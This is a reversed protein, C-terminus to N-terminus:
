LVGRLLVKSSDQSKVFCHNVHFEFSVDNDKAFQSVCVRNKTIAPVLLMNNLKLTTKPHLPSPFKLSGVYTIALGQGNGIHVQDSGSLSVFDMLNFADPTVHHTAGSDPYWVNNYSNRAESGTLFAQAPYGKQSGAQSPPRFQGPLQARPIPQMWMNSPAEYSSNGVYGYSGQM